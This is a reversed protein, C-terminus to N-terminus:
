YKLEIVYMCVYICLYNAVVPRSGLYRVWAHMCAHYSMVLYMLCYLFSLVYM